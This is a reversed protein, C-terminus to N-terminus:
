LRGSHLFSSEPKPFVVVAFGRVGKGMKRFFLNLGFKVEENENAGVNKFDRVRVGNKNKGAGIAANRM